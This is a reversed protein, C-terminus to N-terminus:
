ELEIRFSKHGISIIDDHTVILPQEIKDGNLTTGNRSQRDELWWQGDRLAILAHESSAFTDQMCITNTPARGITTLPLLPFTQGTIIQRGDIEQIEILQGFIRRTAEMQRTASRYDRWIVVFLAGLIALLLLASVLRLLFLAAETTM